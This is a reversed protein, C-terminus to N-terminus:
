TICHHRLDHFRLGLLGAQKVIKRYATRWGNLGVPKTPDPESTYGEHRFFVFWDARSGQLVCIQRAADENIRADPPLGMLRLNQRVQRDSLVNLFPSEELKVALAQRLTGDLVPDGTTNALDRVGGVLTNWDQSKIVEGAVKTGLATMTEGVSKSMDAVPTLNADPIDEIPTDRFRSPDILVTVNTPGIPLVRIPRRLVPTPLNPHLVNIEYAGPDINPVRVTGDLFPTVTRVVNQSVPDLLQVSLDRNVAPFGLISMTLDSM